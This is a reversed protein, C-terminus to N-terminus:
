GAGNRVQALVTELAESLEALLARHVRAWHASDHPREVDCLRRFIAGAELYRDAKKDIPRRIDPDHDFFNRLIRISKISPSGSFTDAYPSPIRWRMPDGAPGKAPDPERAAEYAIKSLHNVVDSLDSECASVKAAVRGRLREDTAEFWGRGFTAKTTTNIELIREYVEFLSNWCENSSGRSHRTAQPGRRAANLLKPRVIGDRRSFLGESAAESRCFDDNVADNDLLTRTGPSLDCWLTGMQGLLEARTRDLVDLVSDEDIRGSVALAHALTMVSLAHGGVEEWVRDALDSFGDISLLKEVQSFLKEVDELGLLGVRKSITIGLLRSAVDPTEEVM